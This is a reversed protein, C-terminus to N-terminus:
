HISCCTSLQQLQSINNQLQTNSTQKPFTQAINSHSTETCNPKILFPQFKTKLSRQLKTRKTTYPKSFTHTIVQKMCGKTPVPHPLIPMAANISKFKNQMYDDLYM